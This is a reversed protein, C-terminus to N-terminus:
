DKKYQNHDISKWQILEVVKYDNRGTGTQKLAKLDYIDSADFTPYVYYFLGNGAPIPICTTSTTLMGKGISRTALRTHINGLEHGDQRLNTTHGSFGLSIDIKKKKFPTAGAKKCWSSITAKLKDTMTWHANFYKNDIWDKGGLLSSGIVFPNLQLIGVGLAYAGKINKAHNGFQNSLINHAVTKLDENFSLYAM